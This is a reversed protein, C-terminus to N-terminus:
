KCILIKSNLSFTPCFEQRSSGMPLFRIDSPFFYSGLPGNDFDDFLFSFTNLDKPVM